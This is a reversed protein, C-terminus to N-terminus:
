KVSEERRIREADKAIGTWVGYDTIWVDEEGIRDRGTLPQNIATRIRYINEEVMLFDFNKHANKSVDYKQSGFGWSM